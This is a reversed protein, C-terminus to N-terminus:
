FLSQFRKQRIANAYPTWTYFALHLGFGTFTHDGTHQAYGMTMGM